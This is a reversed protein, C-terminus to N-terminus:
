SEESPRVFARDILAHLREPPFAEPAAATGDPGLGVIRFALYAQMMGAFVVAMAAPDDDVIEGAAIGDRFLAAYRDVITQYHRWNTDSATAGFKLWDGGIARQFLRYYQAHDAYYDVITDVLVHLRQRPRDAGHGALAEDIVVVTEETRRRIVEGFVEDKGGPFLNYLAGVSIEAADAIERVTAGVFGKLDFVEEAADLVHLTSLRDQQRRREERRGSPRSRPESPSPLTPDDKRDDPVPGAPDRIGTIRPLVEREFLDLSEWGIDPDLGGVLPHLFLADHPGLSEWLRVCEDPTIVAYFGLERLDEWTAPGPYPNAGPREAEWEAYSRAEHLFHPGVAPWAKEPDETVHVGMPLNATMMIGPGRGLRAREDLYAEVIAPDPTAPMMGDGLRAARRATGPTSAGLVLPPHPEQAPRPRVMVRRGAHEFPEGTFARQLVEVGEALARGRADYDRGLMAFEVPRYGAALVVLLRGGSVLDAVAIDEALRVPDHLPLVSAAVTIRMDRTAGAIAGALVLPSPCYGDDCHHHESVSAGAGLHEDAWACQEVAARYLRDHPAGIAPSRMDYRLTLMPM